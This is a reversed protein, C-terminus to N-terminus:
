LAPTGTEQPFCKTPRPHLYAPFSTQHKQQQKTSLEPLLFPSNCQSLITHSTTNQAPENSQFAQSHRPTQYCSCAPFVEWKGHRHQLPVNWHQIPIYTFAHYLGGKIKQHTDWPALTKTFMQTLVMRFWISVLAIKGLYSAEQMTYLGWYYQFCFTRLCDYGVPILFHSIRM